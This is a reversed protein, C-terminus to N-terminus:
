KIVLNINREEVFCWSIQLLLKYQFSLHPTSGPLSRSLPRFVGFLVLVTIYLEILAIYM